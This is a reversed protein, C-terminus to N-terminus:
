KTFHKANKTRDVASGIDWQPINLTININRVYDLDSGLVTFNSNRELIYKEAEEILSDIGDESSIFVPRTKISLERDIGKNKYDYLNTLGVWAKVGPHDTLLRALERHLVDRFSFLVTDLDADEDVPKFTKCVIADHFARRCEIEIFQTRKKRGSGVQGAEM